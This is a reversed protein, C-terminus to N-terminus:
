EPNTPLQTQLSVAHRTGVFSKYFTGVFSKYFTGVFSEYFTHLNLSGPDNNHNNKLHIKLIARM